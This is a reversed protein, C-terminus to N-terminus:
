RCSSRLLLAVYVTHALLLSYKRVFRGCHPKLLVDRAKTGGKAARGEERREPRKAESVGSDKQEGGGWTHPRVQMDLTVGTLLTPAMYRDALDQDGGVVVTAGKAEADEVYGRLRDLHMKNLVRCYDPSQQPNEGYFQTIYKTMADVFEGAVKEEVLVYDPAICTAGANLFKGQCLRRAAVALNASADIIVPSKGGLEFTLPTLTGAVKKEIIQAVRESGTFFIKDWKQELLATTQPVGGNVVAIAAPDLYKPLLEGFLAALAPM